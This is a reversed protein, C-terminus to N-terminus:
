EPRRGQREGLEALALEVRLLDTRLKIESRRVFMSVCYPLGAMTWVALAVLMKQNGRAPDPLHRGQWMLLGVMVLASGLVLQTLIGGDRRLDETGRRLVMIAYAGFAGVLVIGIRLAFLGLRPHDAAYPSLLHVFWVITAVAALASVVLSTREASTIRRETIERLRERFRSELDASPPEAALLRDRLTPENM